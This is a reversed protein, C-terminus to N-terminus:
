LIRDQMNMLNLDIRSISSFRLRMLLEKMRLKEWSEKLSMEYIQFIMMKWIFPEWFTQLKQWIILVLIKSNLSFKRTSTRRKESFFTRGTALKLLAKCEKHLVVKAFSLKNSLPTIWLSYILSQKGIRGSKSDSFIM